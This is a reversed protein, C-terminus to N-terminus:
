RIPRNTNTVEPPAHYKKAWDEWEVDSAGTVHTVVKWKKGVRRLLAQVNSSIAGDEGLFSKPLPKGNKQQVTANLFAWDGVVRFSRAPDEVYFIVPVGVDKQVPPRLADMIATREASGLKPTYAKQGTQGAAMKSGGSQAWAGSQPGSVGFGLAGILAFGAVFANQIKM